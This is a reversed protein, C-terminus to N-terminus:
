GRHLFTVWFYLAPYAAIWTWLFRNLGFAIANGLHFGVGVGILVVCADRHLLALPFGLEFALLAWALVRGVPGAIVRSLWAPAGYRPFRAIIALATGDRWRADGLKAIGAVVYSLVLQAAVYALGARALEGDPATRALALSLLVVWLMADSGGNYSGRFRMTLAIHSAAGLWAPVPSTTWPLTAASALLLAVAVATIWAHGRALPGRRWARHVWALELAAIGAAIAALRSTWAIAEDLTM